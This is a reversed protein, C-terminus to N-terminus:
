PKPGVLEVSLQSGDYLTGSAAGGNLASDPAVTDLFNPDGPDLIGEWWLDGAVAGPGVPHLAYMADATFDYPNGADPFLRAVFVTDGADAAEIGLYYRFHVRYLGAALVRVCLAAPDVTGIPDAGYPVLLGLPDWDGPNIAPWTWGGGGLHAQGLASPHVTRRALLLGGGAGGGGYGGSM